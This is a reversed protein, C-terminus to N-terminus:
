WDDLECAGDRELGKEVLVKIQQLLGKGVITFFAIPDIDTGVALLLILTQLFDTAGIDKCGDVLCQVLTEDIVVETDTDESVMLNEVSEVFVVKLAVLGTTALHGQRQLLYLLKFNAIEHHMDIM